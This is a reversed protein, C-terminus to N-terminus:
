EMWDYQWVYVDEMANSQLQVNNINASGRFNGAVVVRGNNLPALRLGRNEGITGGRRLQQLQGDRNYVALFLEQGTGGELNREYFTIDGTFIGTIFVNGQEDVAIAHARDNAIGGSAHRLWQLHGGQNLKVVYVDQGSASSVERDGWRFNREFAGTLYINGANDVAVDHLIDAAEGRSRDGWMLNGEKDFKTVLVDSNGDSVYRLDDVWIEKEFSAAFIVHDDDVAIGAGEPHYLGALHKSWAISGNRDLKVLLAEYDEEATYEFGDLVIDGRFSLLMYTNGAPDVAMDVANYDGDARLQGMYDVQGDGSVRALFVDRNATTSVSRGGINSEGTFTGFTYLSGNRWFLSTAVENGPGGIQQMWQMQNNQDFKAVFIDSGGATTLNQTKTRLSDDFNGFLYYNGTGDHVIDYAMDSGSGMMHFLKGDAQALTVPASIMLLVITLLYVLPRM